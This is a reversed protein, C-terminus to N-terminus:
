RCGRMEASIASRWLGFLASEARKTERQAADRQKQLNDNDFRLDGVQGHLQAALARAADLQSQLQEIDM